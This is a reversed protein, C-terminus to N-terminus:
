GAHVYAHTAILSVLSDIRTQEMGFRYNTSAVSVANRRVEKGIRVLDRVVGAEISYVSNLDPRKELLRERRRKERRKRVAERARKRSLESM